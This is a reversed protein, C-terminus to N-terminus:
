LDAESLRTWGLAALDEAIVMSVRGESGGCYFSMYDEGLGRLDAVLRGAYRWTCSWRDGSVSVWETNCLAAYLSAAYRDDSAKHALAQVAEELDM